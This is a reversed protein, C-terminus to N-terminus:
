VQRTRNEILVNATAYLLCAAVLGVVISFADLAGLQRASVPMATLFMMAGLVLNRIVMPLSISQGRGGFSCGCDFDRRGRYLNIAIAAGYAVLLVCGAVAAVTRTADIILGMGIVIELLPIIWGALTVLLGPLLDYQEIVRVTQQWNAIKHAGALGFLLAFGICLLTSFVPDIM